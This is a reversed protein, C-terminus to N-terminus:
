TMKPHFTWELGAVRKGDSLRGYGLSRFFAGPSLGGGPYGVLLTM